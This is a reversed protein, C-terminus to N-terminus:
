LQQLIEQALVDLKSSRENETPVTAIHQLDDHLLRVLEPSKAILLNMIWYKWEDDTTMLINHLYPILPTGITSLFPAIVKAVPWNYDQLWYLLDPLVSEVAPYGLVIIALANAEDLRHKPLLQKIDDMNIEERFIYLLM